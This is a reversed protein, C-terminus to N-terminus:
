VVSDKATKTIELTLKEGSYGVAEVGDLVEITGEQVIEDPFFEQFGLGPPPFFHNL